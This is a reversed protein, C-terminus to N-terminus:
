LVLVISDVRTDIDLNVGVDVDCYRVQSNVYMIDGGWAVTDNLFGLFNSVSQFEGRVQKVALYISQWIM